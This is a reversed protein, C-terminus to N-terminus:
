LVGGPVIWQLFGYMMGFAVLALLANSIRKRAAAAAQPDGASTSYQIGGVILVCVVTVGVMGSLLNILIALYRTIGCNDQSLDGSCEAKIECREEPNASDCSNATGSSPDPSEPLTLPPPVSSPSAVAPLPKGKDVYTGVDACEQKTSAGIRGGSTYCVGVPLTTGSLILQGGAATCKKSEAPVDTNIQVVKGGVYCIGANAASVKPTNVQLVALIVLCLSVGVASLRVNKKRIINQIKSM